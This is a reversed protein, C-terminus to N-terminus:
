KLPKFENKLRELTDLSAQLEVYPIPELTPLEKEEAIRANYGESFAMKAVEKIESWTFSGSGERPIDLIINDMKEDLLQTLKDM